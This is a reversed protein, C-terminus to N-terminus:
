LLDSSRGDVGVVLLSSTDCRCNDGTAGCIALAREDWRLRVFEPCPDGGVLSTGVRSHGQDFEFGCFRCGMNNSSSTGGTGDWVLLVRAIDVNEEDLLFVLGGTFM